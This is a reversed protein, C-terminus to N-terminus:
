YLIQVLIILNGIWGVLFALTRLWPVGLIQVAIQVIRGWFFLRAGLATLENAAGIVHAVLVLAAFPVLNEVLNMHARYTRQAWEALDGYEATPYGMARGVGKTAANAAVYPIWILLSLLATYVLYRLDVSLAIEPNM